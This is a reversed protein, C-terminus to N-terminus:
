LGLNEITESIINSNPIDILGQNLLEVAENKRDLKVLVHALHSIVEQDYMREHAALLYTHAEAYKQMKFLVWGMSDLTPADEPNSILAKSILALAEDYRETRNALTYGLANLAVANEPNFLIVSQLDTIAADINGSREYAISRTYLLGEDQPFATVGESLLRISAQLTDPNQMLVRGEEQYLLPQQQPYLQRLETFLISGLNGLQHAIRAERIGAEFILNDDTETNQGDINEEISSYHSFAEELEGSQEYIRGLSFLALNHHEGFQLLKQYFPIAANPTDTSLHLQATHLIVDSSWPYDKSLEELVPIAAKADFSALFEALSIRAESDETYQLIWESLGSSAETIKGDRLFSNTQLRIALLNNPQSSSAKKAYLAAQEYDGLAENLLGLSLQLESDNKETDYSSSIQKLLWSLQYTDEIQSALRAAEITVMRLILTKERHGELLAWAGEVEGARALSRAALELSYADRPNLEINLLALDLTRLPDQGAMSIEAARKTVGPDQTSNALQEYIALARPLNKRYLAFEAELLATMTAEDLPREPIQAATEELTILGETQNKNEYHQNQSDNSSGKETATCATLALFSFTLLWFCQYSRTSSSFSFFAKTFTNILLSM